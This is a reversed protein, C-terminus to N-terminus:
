ESPVNDVMIGVAAGTLIIDRGGYMEFPFEVAPDSFIAESDMYLIWEAVHAPTTELLQRVMAIQNWEYGQVVAAASCHM